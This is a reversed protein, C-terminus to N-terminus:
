SVNFFDIDQVKISLEINLETSMNQNISKPINIEVTESKKYENFKTYQFKNNTDTNSHTTEYKHFEM